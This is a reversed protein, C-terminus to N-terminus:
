LIVEELKKSECQNINTVNGKFFNIQLNGTFEPNSQLINEVFKYVREEVKM